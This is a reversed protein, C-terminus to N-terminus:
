KPTPEALWTKILMATPEPRDKAMQKIASLHVSKKERIKEVELIEENDRYIIGDEGMSALEEDTYKSIARQYAEVSKPNSPDVEMGMAQATAIPVQVVQGNSGIASVLTSKTVKGLQKVVMIGVVLLAAIPLLSFLQQMKAASKTEDQAKVMQTKSSDDFAMPTVKAVFKSKDKGQVETQVFDTLSKLKAADGFKGEKNDAAVNIIMSKVSGVAPKTDTVTEIRTPETQEVKNEYNDSSSGNTEAPAKPKNLNADAGAGAPGGKGKGGMTEIMSKTIAGQKVKQEVQHKHTEDLNVECNVSVKTSGVGYIGDLIGQLRMEEKRAVAQEMELKNSALSGNEAAESGNFLAESREDLVVVHKMDLGETSNAVLMAIGRAAERTISGNGSTVLSVSATSPRTQEAFPSPDGLTLHVRASRVGPNTEISRALEAENMTRIREREVTPTTGLNMDGLGELGLHAGKPVKGSMTLKMRLDAVKDSPVEVQGPVDYRAPVGQAQIETVIAAQDTQSLGGYLLEFKPRSAVSFVGVLMVLTLAVGGLTTYRQTPNCELWWNKIKEILGGM